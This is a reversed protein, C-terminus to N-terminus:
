FFGFRDGGFVFVFSVASVKSDVLCETNLHLVVLSEQFTGQCKKKKKEKKM